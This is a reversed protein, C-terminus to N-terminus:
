LSAHSYATNAFSLFFGPKLGAEKKRRIKLKLGEGRQWRVALVAVASCVTRGFEARRVQWATAAGVPAPSFLSSRAPLSLLACAPARSFPRTKYHNTQWVAESVLRVAVWCWGGLVRRVPVKRVRGLRAAGAVCAGRSRGGYECRAGM